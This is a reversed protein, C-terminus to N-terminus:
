VGEVDPMTPVSAFAMGVISLCPIVGTQRNM